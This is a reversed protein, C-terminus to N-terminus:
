ASEELLERAKRLDATDFGETFWAYLPALLEWAKAHQRQALTLAEQFCAEAEAAQPRGRAQLLLYAPKSPRMFFPM